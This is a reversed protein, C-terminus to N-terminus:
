SSVIEALKRGVEASQAIAADQANPHLGVQDDEIRLVNLIARGVLIRM